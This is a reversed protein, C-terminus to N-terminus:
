TKYRPKPPLAPASNNTISAASSQHHDLALVNFNQPTEFSDLKPPLPPPSEVVSTANQPIWDMDFELPM